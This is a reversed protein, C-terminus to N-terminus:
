IRARSWLRSFNGSTWPEDIASHFAERCAEPLPLTVDGIGLKIISRDPNEQQFATVRKAIDAFLYSAQLKEYNQNLTLM